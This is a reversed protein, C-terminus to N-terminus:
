KIIFLYKRARTAAVYRIRNREEAKKNEYMDWELMMVNEFTSGQAKHATIAYNYKIKAFFNHLKYFAKWADIRDWKGMRQAYIKLSDLAVNYNNLSDEHIVMIRTTAKGKNNSYEILTDYYLFSEDVVIHDKVKGRYRTEAVKYNKVVFESNTTLLIYLGTPDKIPEDVIMKEEPMLAPLVPTFETIFDKYIFSRVKKNIANVAVNRWAIVKMFDPYNPFIDNVFYTECIRYITDKDDKDILIIGGGNVINTKYNYEFTNNKRQERIATAFELIPNGAAQRMITTLVGEKMKYQNQKGRLFPICDIRNIPPIQAPDGVFILRLGNEVFEEIMIFLSDELMSTEDIILVDYADLSPPNMPDPKFSLRGYDDRSEKLGLLSHITAFTLKPDAVECMDRCIQVAKNTPCSVAIKFKKAYLMWNQIKSFMYTKGTGAYGKLVYMRWPQEHKPNDENPINGTAHKGEVYEMIETARQMQEETLVTFDVPGPQVKPRKEPIVFDQPLVLVEEPM